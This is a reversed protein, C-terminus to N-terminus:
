PSPAGGGCPVRWVAVPATPAESRGDAVFALATGRVTDRASTLAPFRVTVGAPWWSPLLILHQVGAISDIVASERAGTPTLRGHVSGSPRAERLYGRTASDHGARTWDLPPNWSGFAFRYCGPSGDDDPEDQARADGAALAAGVALFALSRRM